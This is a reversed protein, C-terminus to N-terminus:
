KKKTANERQESHTNDKIPIANRHRYRDTAIAQHDRNETQFAINVQSWSVTALKIGTEYDVSETGRQPSRRLTRNNRM